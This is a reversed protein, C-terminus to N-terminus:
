QEIIGCEACGVGECDPCYEEEEEGFEVGLLYALKTQEREMQKAQEWDFKDPEREKFIQYLWEVATQAM